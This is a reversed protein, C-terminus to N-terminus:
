RKKEERRHKTRELRANERSCVPAQTAVSLVVKVRKALVLKANSSGANFVSRIM